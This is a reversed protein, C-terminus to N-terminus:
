TLKCTYLYVRMIQKEGERLPGGFQAVLGALIKTRIHQVSGLQAAETYTCNFCENCSKDECAIIQYIVNCQVHIYQKRSIILCNGVVHYLYYYQLELCYCVCM